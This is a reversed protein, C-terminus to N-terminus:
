FYGSKEPRSEDRLRELGYLRGGRKVVVLTRLHRRIAEYYFMWILSSEVIAM